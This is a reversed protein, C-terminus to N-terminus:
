IPENVSDISATKSEYFFPKPTMVECLDPSVSSVKMPSKATPNAVPYILVPAGHLDSLNALYL